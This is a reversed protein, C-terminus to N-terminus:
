ERNQQQEARGASDAAVKLGSLSAAISAATASAIATL